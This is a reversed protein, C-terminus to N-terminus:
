RQPGKGKGQCNGQCCGQGQGQRQGQGQGQGQGKIKARKDQRLARVENRTIVGDGNTDIANFNDALRPMGATKAENYSLARIGDTDAAQARSRREQRSGKRHARREERTLEGNGDADIEAFNEVLRTAGAANAEAKTIVGDSNSDINRPGKGAQPVAQALGPVLAALLCSLIIKTKM